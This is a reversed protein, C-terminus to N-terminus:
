FLRRELLLFTSASVLPRRRTKAARDAGEPVLRNLDQVALLSEFGSASGEAAAPVDHTKPTHAWLPQKKTFCQM